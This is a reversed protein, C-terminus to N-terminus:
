YYDLTVLMLLFDFSATSVTVAFIACIQGEPGGGEVKEDLNLSCANNCSAFILLSILIVYSVIFYHPKGCQM